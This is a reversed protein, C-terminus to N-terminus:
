FYSLLSLARFGLVLEAPAPRRQASNPRRAASFIVSAGNVQGHHNCPVYLTSLKPDLLEIVILARHPCKTM